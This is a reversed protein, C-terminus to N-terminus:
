TVPLGAQRRANRWAIKRAKVCVLCLRQKAKETFAHGHPCVTQRAYKACVGHGRMVNEELTVAELHDPRVCSPVRCLHDIVLGDPIKGYAQEYSWRYAKQYGLDRSVYFEGAHGSPNVSATWYWHTDEAKYVKDWFRTDAPIASYRGM